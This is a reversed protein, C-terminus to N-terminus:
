CRPIKQQVNLNALVRVADAEATHGILFGSTIRM